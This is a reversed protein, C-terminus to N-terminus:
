GSETSKLRVDVTFALLTLLQSLFPLPHHSGAGRCLPHAQRVQGFGQRGPGVEKDPSENTGLILRTEWSTNSTVKSSFFHTFYITDKLYPVDGHLTHFNLWAPSNNEKMTEKVM